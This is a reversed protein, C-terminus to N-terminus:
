DGKIKLFYSIKQFFEYRGKFLGYSEELGSKRSFSKGDFKKEDLYANFENKIDELLKNKGESGQLKEFSTKSIQDYVIKRFDVDYDTLFDM